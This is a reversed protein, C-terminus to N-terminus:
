AAIAAFRYGCLKLLEIADFAGKDLQEKTQWDLTSHFIDNRMTEEIEGLDRADTIDTLKSISKQYHSMKFSEKNNSLGIM